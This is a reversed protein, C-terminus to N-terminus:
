EFSAQRRDVCPTVKRNSLQFSSPDCTDADIAVAVVHRETPRLHWFRWRQPNENLRSDFWASVEGFRFGFQQLSQSLGVGRAKIYSEKLTWYDFFRRQQQTLPTNRLRHAEEASFFREALELYSANRQHDEVDAGIDHRRVVACVILGDTHSLNFRLKQPNQEAAIEPKGHEGASFRWHQPATNEYESLVSRVLARTVLYQHRHEPFRFRQWRRREDDNLLEVYRALLTASDIDEPTCYWLHVDGERLGLLNVM